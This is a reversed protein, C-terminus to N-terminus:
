SSGLSSQDDMHGNIRGILGGIGAISGAAKKTDACCGGCAAATANEAWVGGAVRGVAGLGVSALNRTKQRLHVGDKM